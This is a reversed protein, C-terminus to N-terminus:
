IDASRGAPHCSWRMPVWNPHETSWKAIEPMSTMMCQEPSLGDASYTLSVNKCRSLDAALCAAIVLEMM